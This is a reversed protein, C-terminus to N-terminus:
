FFVTNYLWFRNDDSKGDSDFGSTSRGPNDGITHAWIGRIAFRDAHSFNIGIGSGSLSFENRGSANTVDGTWRQEHLTIHGTDFFGVLQLNGIDTQYPVDYRLEFNAVWGSDGNAEGIPYARV